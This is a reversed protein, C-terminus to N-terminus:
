GQPTLMCFTPGPPVSEYEAQSRSPQQQLFQLIVIAGSTDTQTPQPQRRGDGAGSTRMGWCPSNSYSNRVAVRADAALQHVVALVADLRADEVIFLVM